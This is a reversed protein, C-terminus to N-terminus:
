RASMNVHRHRQRDDDRQTESFNSRRVKAREARLRKAEIDKSSRESM